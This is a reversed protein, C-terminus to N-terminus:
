ESAGDSWLLAILQEKKFIDDFIFEEALVELNEESYEVERSFIHVNDIRDQFSFHKNNDLWRCIDMEKIVLFHTVMMQIKGFVDHDYVSKMFYRFVLYNLLNRYEYEREIFQRYFESALYSYEGDDMKDSHFREIIKNLADTWSENLVELEEYACIISRIGDKVSIEPYSVEEYASHLEHLCKEGKDLLYKSVVSKIRNTENSNVLEQIEAGMSLLVILKEHISYSDAALIQFIVDRAAFLQRGLEPEYESDGNFEEDDEREVLLFAERDSFIIREAEECALGIGTEKINGYYETYRPFQACVYGLHEEGLEKYLGCLQEDNLFPCHGDVLKFCYEDTKTIYSRLKKGFEGPVNQYYEYTEDDIGIEWGGVCCNDKCDSAICHFKDYYHPVRVKM